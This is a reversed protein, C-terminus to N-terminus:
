DKDTPSDVSDTHLRVEPDRGCTDDQVQVFRDSHHLLEFEDTVRELDKLVRAEDLYSSKEDETDKVDLKEPDKTSINKYQNKTKFKMDRGSFYM